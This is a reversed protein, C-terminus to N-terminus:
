AIAGELRRVIEEAGLLALAVSTLTPNCSTSTPIVGNGAVFVNSTEWVRSTPDCVSTGDDVAGMRVTGLYHISSGPPLARPEEGALTSGLAEALEVLQRKGREAREIDNKSLRYHFTIAPMGLWDQETESFTVRNDADLDQRLFVSMAFVPGLRDSEAAPLGLSDPDVQVIQGHYPFDEEDFPIWFVGSATVAMASADSMAGTDGKREATDVHFESDLVATLSIQPHENLYRGLAQPRIGSAFLLQPTRIGDCAVVVYSAGIVRIDGTVRDRVEVGVATDGDMVIRQAITQPRLEFTATAGDLLGGLIDDTGTRVIGGPTSVLAMPMQQARRHVPRGEDVVRGLVSCVKDSLARNTFQTNSVKLLAEARAYADDLADSGLLDIRESGYPRPCAGFWHAGMGGVGSTAQAVPLPGRDAGGTGLSFLGPRMLVSDFGAHDPDREAEAHSLHPYEFAKPGQCAVQARTRDSEDAINAVHSGPPHTAIPGAELLLVTANPAQATITRAYAAGTPGSGVIVVDVREDQTM